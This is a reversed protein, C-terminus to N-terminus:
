IWRRVRERYLGYEEGFREELYREERRIVGRDIAALVGPLLALSWSSRTLLSIGVYILTAGLYGPNRTFRYPGDQALATTPKYPNVNTGVRGFELAGLEAIGIGTAIMPWGLLRAIRRSSFPTPFRRSALLGLGLAGAYILPPPALVGATELEDSM